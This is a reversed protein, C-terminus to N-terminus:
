RRTWGIDLPEPLLWLHRFNATNIGDSDRPYVEVAYAEGFGIQRKIAQLEDWSLRDAWHGDGTMKSRCVSMRLMGARQEGEDYVQVLYERSYWMQIPQPEIHTPWEERPVLSLVSPLKSVRTHQEKIAARRDHRNM